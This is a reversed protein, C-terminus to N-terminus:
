AGALEVVLHDLDVGAFASLREGIDKSAGAHLVHHEVQLVHKRLVVAGLM